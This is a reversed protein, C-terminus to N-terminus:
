GSAVPLQQRELKGARYGGVFARMAAASMPEACTYYGGDDAIDLLVMQGADTPAGLSTMKRIQPAPDSGDSAALFIIGDDNAGKLETAIPSLEDLLAARARPEVGELMVCVCPSEVEVEDIPGIPPPTWPFSAGEEDAGVAGRASGNIVKGSAGDIIVLSPIGSVEFMESLTSKRPDGQPIALWPMSAFYDSFEKTSQDSSIFIIEFQKGAAKVKKYVEVLTPTFGRCPPCWHASFYLGIVKGDGRIEGLEATEGDARMFEDGLAEWLTPPAYPFDDVPGMVASRANKNYANGDADLLILTPIGSVKFKKSLAAKTERAEYPLALWPHEGFYEDFASEDRDSSVFVIEFPKGAAVLKAYQEALKPTYMRCPPCWHASFYLGVTKGALADSTAVTGTKTQARPATPHM